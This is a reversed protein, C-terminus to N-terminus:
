ERRFDHLWFHAFERGMFTTFSNRPCASMLVVVSNEEVTPFSWMSRARHTISATAVPVFSALTVGVGRILGDPLTPQHGM